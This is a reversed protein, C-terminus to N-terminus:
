YVLFDGIGNSGGLAGLACPWHGREFWYCQAALEAPLEHGTSTYLAELSFTWAAHWVALTPAHALDSAEDYPVLPAAIAVCMALAKDWLPEDDPLIVADLCAQQQLHIAVMRDDDPGPWAGWDFIRQVCIDAIPRGINTFLPISLFRNRLQELDLLRHTRHEVTM